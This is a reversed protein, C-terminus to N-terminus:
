APVLEKADRFPLCVAFLGPMALLYAVASAELV